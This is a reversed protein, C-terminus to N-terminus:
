ATPTSNSSSITDKETNDERDQDQIKDSSPDDEVVQEPTGTNEEELEPRYIMEEPSTNKETAVTDDSEVSKWTQTEPDLLEEKINEKLTNATKNLDSQVTNFIEREDSLSEKLTNMTQKLEFIGQALKRAMDPLKDPGVVILAVAMIVIMEPLGIGFM